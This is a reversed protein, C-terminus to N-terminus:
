GCRSVSVLTPEALTVTGGPHLSAWQGLGAALASAQAPQDMRVNLGFCSQAGNVTSVQADGAWGQTLPDVADLAVGERLLQTLLYVGFSGATRVTGPVSPAAVAVAPENALYKATDFGQEATSPLRQLAGDTAPLGGLALLENTFNGGRLYPAQTFTLLALPVTLLAPDSGAQLQEALDQAQELETMGARYANMVRVASGEIAILSAFTREGLLGDGFDNNLGVLQDDLAHTLEHAIVERRYPTLDTGRVKLAKSVPDYFGVVAGGFAIQYKEWLSDTPSMWGIAKFTAEAREVDDRNVAINALVAARFDADSLFEVNPKTVFRHGRVAEVFGTIEDVRQQPTLEPPPTCAGAVLTAAVVLGVLLNRGRAM